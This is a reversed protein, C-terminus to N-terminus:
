PERARLRRTLNYTSTTHSAHPCVFRRLPCRACVANLPACRRKYHCRALRMVDLPLKAVDFIRHGLRSCASRGVLGHVREGGVECQCAGPVLSRARAACGESGVCAHMCARMNRGTSPPPRARKSAPGSAISVRRTRAQENAACRSMNHACHLPAGLQSSHAFFSARGIWSTISPKWQWEGAHRPPLSILASV